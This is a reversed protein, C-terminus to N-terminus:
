NTIYFLINNIYLQIMPIYSQSYDRECVTAVSCKSDDLNFNVCNRLVDFNDYMIFSQINSSITCIYKNLCKELTHKHVTLVESKLDLKLGSEFELHINNWGTKYKILRSHIAFFPREIYTYRYLLALTNFMVTREGPTGRLRKCTMNLAQAVKCYYLKNVCYNFIPKVVGGLIYDSNM